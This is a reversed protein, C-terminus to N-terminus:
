DLYAYKDDSLDLQGYQGNQVLPGQRLSGHLPCLTNHLDTGAYMDSHRLKDHERWLAGIAQERTMIRM